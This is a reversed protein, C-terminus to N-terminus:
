NKLTYMKNESNDITVPSKTESVWVYAYMESYVHRLKSYKSPMYPIIIYKYKSNSRIWKLWNDIFTYKKGFVNKAYLKTWESKPSVDEKVMTWHNFEREVLPATLYVNSIYYERTAVFWISSIIIVIAIILLKM